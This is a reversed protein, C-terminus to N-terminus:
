LGAEPHEGRSLEPRDLGAPYRRASEAGQALRRLGEFLRDGLVTGVVAAEVIRDVSPLADLTDLDVQAVQDALDAYDGIGDLLKVHGLARITCLTGVLAPAVPHNPGFQWGHKRALETVVELAWERDDPPVDAALGTLARQAIGLAKHTPQHADVAAVVDRVTAVSLGGVEVMARILRLRQVHNEGYRAQNPSTREGPPLLGERLYYKITAVPIGSEASLEAM